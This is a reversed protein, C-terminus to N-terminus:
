APAEAAFGYVDAATVVEPGLLFEALALVTVLASKSGRGEGEPRIVFVAGTPRDILVAQGGWYCDRATLARRIRRRLRRNPRRARTLAFRLQWGPLGVREAWRQRAHDTIGVRALDLPTM